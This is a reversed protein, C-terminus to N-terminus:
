GLASMLHRKLDGDCNSTLVPPLLLPQSGMKSKTTYVLNLQISTFMVALGCQFLFDAKGTQVNMIPILHRSVFNANLATSQDQWAVTIGPKLM